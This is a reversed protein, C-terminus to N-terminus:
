RKRDELIAAKNMALEIFKNNEITKLPRETGNNTMSGRSGGCWEGLGALWKTAGAFANLSATGGARTWKGAIAGLFLRSVSRSAEM